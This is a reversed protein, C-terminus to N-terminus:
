RALFVTLISSHFMIKFLACYYIKLFNVMSVTVNPGLHPSFIQPGIDCVLFLLAPSFKVNVNLGGQIEPHVIFEHVLCKLTAFSIHVIRKQSETDMSHFTHTSNDSPHFPPPSIM